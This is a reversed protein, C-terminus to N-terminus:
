SPSRKTTAAAPTGAVAVETLEGAAV